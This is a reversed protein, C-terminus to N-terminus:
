WVDISPGSAPSWSHRLLFNLKRSGDGGWLDCTGEGSRALSGPPFRSYDGDDEPLAAAYDFYTANWRLERAKTDYMTITYEPSVRWGTVARAM